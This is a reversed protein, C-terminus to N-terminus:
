EVDGLSEDLLIPVENLNLLKAGGPWLALTTLSAPAVEFAAHARLSLGLVQCISAKIVDGHSILAISQDQHRHRLAELLLAMRAQVALMSEGGPAQARDREANWRQWAPDSDLEAFSRGQWSGFDIETAAIAEQPRLGLATGLIAATDRCREIPSTYLAQLGGRRLRQALAASQARGEASLALGPLRGSLAQGLQAHAAHRLLFIVTAM